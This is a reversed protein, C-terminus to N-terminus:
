RLRLTLGPKLSRHANGTSLRNMKCLSKLKIGFRQSISYVTDGTRTTYTSPSSSGATEGKEEIYVISGAPIQENRQRWGKDNFSALKRAKMSFEKAIEAYTDGEKAIVCYLENRKVIDHVATIENYIESDISHELSEDGELHKPKAIIPQGTDYRYLEYTEIIEILKDAYRKDTAYGCQRLTRAWGKYDTIKLKFLPAYRKQKLFRAHDEFSDDASRYSRFCENPADDNAYIKGGNWRKGHCKIGFHNNGESALRSHGAGSELLGQALTISAPIGYEQQQRVAIDRYIEIYELYDPSLSQAQASFAPCVILSCLFCCIYFIKKYKSRITHAEASFISHIRKKQARSESYKYLHTNM